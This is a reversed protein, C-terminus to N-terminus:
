PSTRHESNFNHTDQNIRRKFNLLVSCCDFPLCALSDPDGVTVSLTASGRQNLPLCCAMVEFGRLCDLEACWSAVEAVAGGFAGARATKASFNMRASGVDAFRQKTEHGRQFCSTSQRAYRKEREPLRQGRATETTSRIFDKPLRLSAERDNYAAEDALM